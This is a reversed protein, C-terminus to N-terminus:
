HQSTSAQKTMQAMDRVLGLLLKRQTKPMRNWAKLLEFTEAQPFLDDISPKLGEFFYSVPVDLAKAINWLRSAPIRNHASEYKQIQQWRLGVKRALASKSLDAQQRRQRLREGVHVDVLRAKRVTALHGDKSIHKMKEKREKDNGPGPHFNLPQM